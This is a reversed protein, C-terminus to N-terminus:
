SGWHTVQDIAPHGRWPGSAPVDRPDVFRWRVTGSGDLGLYAAADPSPDIGARIDFTNEPRSTGFVYAYDGESCPGVDVWQVYATRDHHRVAIWRGKRGADHSESTAMSEEESLHPRLEARPM